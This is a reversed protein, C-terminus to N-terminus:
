AYIPRGPAQNKPMSAPGFIPDDMVANMTRLNMIESVPTMYMKKKM